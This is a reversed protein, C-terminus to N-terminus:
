LFTWNDLKKEKFLYKEEKKKEFIVIEREM